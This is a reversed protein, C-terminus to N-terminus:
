AIKKNKAGYVVADAQGAICDATVVVRKADEMDPVDMATEACEDCICGCMFCMPKDEKM